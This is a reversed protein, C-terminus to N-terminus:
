PSVGAALPPLLSVNTPVSRILPSKHWVNITLLSDLSVSAFFISRPATEGSLDKASPVVPRLSLARNTCVSLPPISREVIVRMRLSM